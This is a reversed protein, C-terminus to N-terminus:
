NKEKNEQKEFEVQHVINIDYEVIETLDGICQRSGNLATKLETICKQISFICRNQLESELCKGGGLSMLTRLISETAHLSNTDGLHSLLRNGLKLYLSGGYDLGHEKMLLPCDQITRFIASILENAMLLLHADKSM